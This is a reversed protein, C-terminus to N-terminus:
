VLWGVHTRKNMLAGGTSREGDVEGRRQAKVGHLTYNQTGRVKVRQATLAAIVSHGLVYGQM